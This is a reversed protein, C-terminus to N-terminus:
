SRSASNKTNELSKRYQRIIRRLIRTMSEDEEEAINRLFEYDLTTIWFHMQRKHFKTANSTQLKSSEKTINVSSTLHLSGNGAHFVRSM